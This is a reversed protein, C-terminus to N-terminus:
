RGEGYQFGDDDSQTFMEVVAGKLVDPLGDDATSPTHAVYLKLLAYAVMGLIIYRKQPIKPKPFAKRLMALIDM